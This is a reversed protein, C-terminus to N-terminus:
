TLMLIQADFNQLREVIERIREADRRDADKILVSLDAIAQRIVDDM